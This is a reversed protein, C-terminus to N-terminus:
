HDFWRSVDVRDIADFQPKPLKLVGREVEYLRLLQEKHSQYYSIDSSDSVALIKRCRDNENAIRCMENLFNLSDIENALIEHEIAFLPEKQNVRIELYDLTNQKDHVEHATKPNKLLQEKVRAWKDRRDKSIRRFDDRFRGFLEFETTHRNRRFQYALALLSGIVGVSTAIQAATEFNM